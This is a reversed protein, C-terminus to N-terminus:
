IRRKYVNIYMYLYIYIYIFIYIYKFQGFYIILCNWDQRHTHTLTRQCTETDVSTCFRSSKQTEMRGMLRNRKTTNGSRGSGWKREGKREGGRGGSGNVDGHVKDNFRRKDGHCPGDGGAIVVIIYDDM